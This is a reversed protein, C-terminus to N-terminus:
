IMKVINCRQINKVARKSEMYRLLEVCHGKKQDPQLTELMTLLLFPLIKADTAAYLAM